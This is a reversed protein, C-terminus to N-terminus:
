TCEQEVEANGWRALRPALLPCWSSTREVQETLKTTGGGPQMQWEGQRRRVMACTRRPSSALHGPWVMDQRHIGTPDGHLKAQRDWVYPAGEFDWM